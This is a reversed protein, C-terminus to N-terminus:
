HKDSTHIFSCHESPFIVCSILLQVLHAELCFTKLGVLCLVYRFVTFCLSMLRLSLGTKGSHRWNTRTWAWGEVWKRCLCLFPPSDTRPVGDVPECRWSALQTTRMVELINYRQVDCFDRVGIETGMYWGNFPCGPFELGGAELLMNAVAPLAYWKLELEQFWEYRACLCLWPCSPGASKGM